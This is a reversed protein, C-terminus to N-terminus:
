IYKENKVKIKKIIKQYLNVWFKEFVAFIIGLFLILLMVIFSISMWNTM